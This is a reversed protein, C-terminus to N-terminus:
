GFLSSRIQAARHEDSPTCIPIASPNRHRHAARFSPRPFASRGPNPLPSSGAPDRFQMGLLRPHHVQSMAPSVNTNEPTYSGCSACIHKRFGRLCKMRRHGDGFAVFRIRQSRTRSNCGIRPVAPFSTFCIIAQVSDRAELSPFSRAPRPIGVPLEVLQVTKYEPAHGAPLVPPSPLPRCVLPPM